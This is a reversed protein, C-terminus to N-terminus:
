EKYITTMKQFATTDSLNLLAMRVSARGCKFKFIIECACSVWVRFLLIHIVCLNAGYPFRVRSVNCLLWNGLWRALRATSIGVKGIKSEGVIKLNRIEFSQCRVQLTEPIYLLRDVIRKSSSISWGQDIEPQSHNTM